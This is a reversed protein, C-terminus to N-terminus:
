KITKPPLGYAAVWSDYTAQTAPWQFCVGFGDPDTVYLQKMGYWTVKPEQLDLGKAHLQQYTGDLDECGFFLCTDGHGSVRAPDPLAPREGEDYATNLMVEVGSLRLLGWGFNEGPGSQSVLEFGLADRYFHLSAPMDFVQLLPAMGRLGISM